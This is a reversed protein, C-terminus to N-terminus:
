VVLGVPGLVLPATSSRPLPKAGYIAAVPVMECKTTMERKTYM